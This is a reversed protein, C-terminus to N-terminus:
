QQTLDKFYNVFPAPFGAGKTNKDFILRIM